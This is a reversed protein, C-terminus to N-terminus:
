FMRGQSSVCTVGNGRCSISGSRRPSGVPKQEFSQPVVAKVDDTSGNICERAM